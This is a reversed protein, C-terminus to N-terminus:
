SIFPEIAKKLEEYRIFNVFRLLETDDDGLVITTPVKGINYKEVLDEQEEADINEVPINKVKLLEKEQMKCQGCHCTGFKLIKM